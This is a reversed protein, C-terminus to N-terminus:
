NTPVVVTGSAAAIGTILSRSQMNVCTIREGLAADQNAIARVTVKVRGRTIVVTVIEGKRIVAPAAVDNLTLLQGPKLDRRAIMDTVQDLAVLYLGATQTVKERGLTVNDPGLRTGQRVSGQVKLVAQFRTLKFQVPVTRAPQDDVLVEVDVVASSAQLTGNRVRARLEQSRHGPPVQLSRLRSQVEFEVDAGDLAILAELVTTAAEALAVPSVEVAVTQLLTESAGRFRFNAVAHGNAALTQMLDTRTVTRPFGPAPSPGFRLRGIALADTGPPTIDVLEGLTVELGRALVSSKLEVEFAPVPPRAAAPDREFAAPAPAQAAAPLAFAALAVVLAFHHSM